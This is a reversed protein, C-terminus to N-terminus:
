ILAKVLMDVDDPDLYPAMAAIIMVTCNTVNNLDKQYCTLTKAWASM